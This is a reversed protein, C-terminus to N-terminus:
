MSMELEYVVVILKSVEVVDLVDVGGGEQVGTLVVLDPWCM